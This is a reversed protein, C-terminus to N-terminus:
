DFSLITTKKIIKHEKNKQVPNNKIKELILLREKKDMKSLQRKLTEM